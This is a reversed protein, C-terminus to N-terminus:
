KGSVQREEAQSDYKKILDIMQGMIWRQDTKSLSHYYGLLEEDEMSISSSPEEKGTLIYDTTVGFYSALKIIAEVSPRQTGKRWKGISGNGLGLEKCISLDSLGSNDILEMIRENMAFFMSLYRFFMNVNLYIALIIVDYLM